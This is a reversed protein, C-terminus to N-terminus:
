YLTRTPDFTLKASNYICKKQELLPKLNFLQVHTSDIGSKSDRYPKKGVMKISILRFITINFRILRFSNSKCFNISYSKQMVLYDFHFPIDCVTHSMSMRYAWIIHAM